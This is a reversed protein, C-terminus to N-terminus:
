IFWSRTNRICHHFFNCPSTTIAHLLFAASGSIAALTKTWHVVVSVFTGSISSTCSKTCKRLLMHHLVEYVHFVRAISALLTEISLISVELM